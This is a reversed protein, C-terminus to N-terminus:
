LGLAEKAEALVYFSGTVLWISIDSDEIYKAVEGVSPMYFTTKGDAFEDLKTSPRFMDLEQSHYQTLLIVDAIDKLIGLHKEPQDKSSAFVVGIKDKGFKDKVADVVASLKQENHAGDLIFTKGDREHIELRGPLSYAEIAKNVLDKSLEWDDRDSLYELIELVLSLNHLNHKGSLVPNIDGLNSLGYKELVDLNEVFSLDANMKSRHKKFVENVEDENQTAFVKQGEHVIGIKQAAIEPLTDGLIHTHDYGIRTIACVKDDRTITNSTDLRGGMGTEVVMYDVENKRGGLFGLAMLTEFYSPTMKEEVMQIYTPLLINVLEVFEEKSLLEGNIRLRERIDYVHPSNIFSNSKGHQTLIAALLAGVTGKGSTGAIHVAPAYDQPNGLKEMFIKSKEFGKEGLFVRDSTKPVELVLFKYADEFNKITDVLSLELHLLSTTM